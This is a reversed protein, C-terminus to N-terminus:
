EEEEGGHACERLLEIPESGRRRHSPVTPVCKGPVDVLLQNLPHRFDEHRAPHLFRSIGADDDVVAPFGHRSVGHSVQNSIRRLKRPPHFSQAVIEVRLSEFEPDVITGARLCTRTEGPSAPMFELIGARISGPAHVVQFIIPAVMTGRVCLLRVFGHPIREVRCAPGHDEAETFPSVILWPQPRRFDAMEPAGRTVYPIAEVALTHIVHPPFDDQVLLHTKFFVRPGIVPIIGVHQFDAVLSEREALGSGM